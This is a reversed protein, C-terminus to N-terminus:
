PMASPHPRVETVTAVDGIRLLAGDRHVLPMAALDDASRVPSVHSIAMRQNPMDIFGGATVATADRSATLVQDLTVNNAQLREPDVHVQIQRDRQGWIAVNAVGGVAMLRPRVTWKALTTLEVQSLKSSTLGVKMVRSLSSLPPMVVPAHATAPLSGAVRAAREQVIQRAELVDTGEDFIM